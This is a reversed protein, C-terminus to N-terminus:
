SQRAFVTRTDVSSQPTVRQTDPEGPEGRSHGVSDGWQTRMPARPSARADQDTRAQMASVTPSQDVWWRGPV